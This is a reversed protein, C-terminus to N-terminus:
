SFLHTIQDVYYVVDHEVYKQDMHSELLLTCHHIWYNVKHSFMIRCCQAEAHTICWVYINIGNHCVGKM